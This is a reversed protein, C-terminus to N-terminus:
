CHIVGAGCWGMGGGLGVRGVGGSGVKYLVETYNKLGGGCHVSRSFVSDGRLLCSLRGGGGAGGNDGSAVVFPSVCKELASFSAQRWFIEFWDVQFTSQWINAGVIRRGSSM